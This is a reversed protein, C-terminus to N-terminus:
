KVNQLNIDVKYELRGSDDFIHMKQMADAYMRKSISYSDSGCLSGNSIVTTRGYDKVTDHHIHGMFVIRPIIGLFQPITKAVGSVYDMDGHVYVHPEDFTTDIYYGDEGTIIEVNGFDRLRCEMYWPILNEFNEKLLADNKNAIARSHNGSINIVRVKPVHKSIEAVAESLREAVYKTQYVVDESQEIRSTLHIFGSIQDGISGITLESVSHKKCYDITKSVLYEFRKEFVQPNYTNLTNNSEQGFHFDSFLVNARVNSRSRESIRYFSLPKVKELQKIAEVVEDKLHDYKAILKIKNNFERKQDQFQYKQKQLEITKDEIERVYEDSTSKKVGITIGRKLLHYEKRYKSESFDESLFENLLSAVKSWSLNLEDKSDGLRILYEEYSDNVLHEIPTM